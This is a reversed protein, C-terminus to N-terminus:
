MHIDDTDVVFYLPVCLQLVHVFNTKACPIKAKRGCLSLRAVAVVNLLTSYLIVTLRTVVRVFFYVCGVTNAHFPEPAEKKRRSERRNVYKEYDHFLHVATAHM